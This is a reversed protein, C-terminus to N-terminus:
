LRGFRRLRYGHGFRCVATRPSSHPRPKTAGITVLIGAMPPDPRHAGRGDLLVEIMLTPNSSRDRTATTPRAFASVGVTSSKTALTPAGLGTTPMTMAVKTNSGSLKAAKFAARALLNCVLKFKAKPDASALMPRVIGATAAMDMRNPSGSLSPSSRFSCISSAIVRRTPTIVKPVPRVVTSWPRTCKTIKAANRKRAITGHFARTHLHFRAILDGM